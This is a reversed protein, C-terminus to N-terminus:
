NYNFSLVWLFKKIHPNQPCCHLICLLVTEGLQSQLPVTPECSAGPSGKRQMGQRAVEAAAFELCLQLILFCTWPSDPAAPESFRAAKNYTKRPLKQTWLFNTCCKTRVPPEPSHFNMLWNRLVWGDCCCWHLYFVSGTDLSAGSCWTQICVAEGM